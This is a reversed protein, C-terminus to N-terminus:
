SGIFYNNRYNKCCMGTTEKFVKSFYYPNNFGVTEAIEYIRCDSERLLQKAKEIRFDILFTSFNVNVEQKFLTSLYSKSKQTHEALDSLSINQSYNEEVYKICKAITYSYHESKNMSIKCLKMFLNLIYTDVAEFNSFQDFDTYTDVTNGETNQGSISKALDILNLYTSRLYSINKSNQLSRFFKNLYAAAEVENGSSIHQTLLETDLTPHPANRPIASSFIAIGSQEFFASDIAKKAESIISRLEKAANITSIGILIDIDLYQLVNNKILKSYEKLSEFHNNNDPEIEFIYLVENRDNLFASHKFEKSLLNSSIKDFSKIYNGSVNQQRSDESTKPFLKVIFAALPAELSYKPLSNKIRKIDHECIFDSYIQNTKQPLVAKTDASGNNKTHKFLINLLNDPSLESKLVYDNAGLKLAEQAYNFDDYHSLIIAILSPKRAKLREILELGGIIPMRIDTILIDPDSTEFISVAEKGNRATGVVQFGNENWPITSELGVRVLFEDDVILVKLM